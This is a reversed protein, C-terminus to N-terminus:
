LIFDQKLYRSCLVSVCWKETSMGAQITYVCVWVCMLVSLVRHESPPSSLMSGTSQICWLVTEHKSVCQLQKEASNENMTFSVMGAHSLLNSMWSHSKRYPSSAPQKTIWRIWVSMLVHLTKNRQGSDSLVHRCDECVDPIWPISGRLHANFIYDRQSIRTDKSNWSVKVLCVSVLQVRVFRYKFQVVTYM